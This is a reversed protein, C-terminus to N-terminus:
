AGHLCWSLSGARATGRGIVEDKASAIGDAHSPKCRVHFVGELVRALVGWDGRCAVM